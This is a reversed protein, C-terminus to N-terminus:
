KLKESFKPVKKQTCKCYKNEDCIIIIIIIIIIIFQLRNLKLVEWMILFETSKELVDPLNLSM